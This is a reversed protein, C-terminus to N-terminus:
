LVKVSCPFVDVRSLRYVTCYRCFLIMAAHLDWLPSLALTPYVRVGWQSAVVHLCHGLYWHVM